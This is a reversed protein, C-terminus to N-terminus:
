KSLTAIRKLDEDVNMSGSQNNLSQHIKLSEELYNIASSRQGSGFVILGLNHWVNALGLLDAHRKYRSDAQLAYEHAKEWDSSLRYAIAMNNWIDAVFSLDGTAEAIEHADGLYKLAPEPKEMDVYLAGLNTLGNMLSHTDQMKKWIRCAMMLNSEASDWHRQNMYLIGLHNHTHALGHESGLDEFISLAHCSLVESRWAYDGNVYAYGLNSCARAEEFRNGTHRALRIVRRYFRVVDQPRSERQCLRALLATLTIEGDVDEEKQAVGIARDLITHWVAWQGRREMYSTFAIILKKVVPWAQSMELGFSIAKLIAEHEQDLTEIEIDQVAEDSEWREVMSLVCQLFYQADTSTELQAPEQWKVVEHMLFTETLRHLRYRPESLDGGVEVLSLTRLQMLAGQLADVELGSAAGLQAFTANPAVPMTLLLYRSSQDLMQWAQWYIYSYLQEARDTTAAHLSMLVQDLPLFQLQGLVLKLALPNGGVTAYITELQEDTAGMLTSMGRSEAEYRLFALADDRNLESLSHCYVDGQGALSLRSTILFKSPNALHRLLPLLEAYDIATELNDVVVLSVKEKLLQTLALRKEQSSGTPYPGDSLQALLLDMLTEADLAPKGTEQVGRDPLYEEQKASIWGIDQYRFTGQVENGSEDVGDTQARDVLRHILTNALSTKGIGGIGDIAILWSRDDANVAGEIETLAMEVGFLKQDPLPDLRNLITYPDFRQGSVQLIPHGPPSTMTDGQRGATKGLEGTRIQEALTVTTEDPEVGLEQDLVKICRDYQALAEARQGQMALARMLRCHASEDWPTLVLQRRALDVVQGFSGAAEALDGVHTIASSLQQHLHERMMAMWDEFGPANDVSFGALFDGQYLDLASQLQTYAQQADDQAMVIDVARLMENVDLQYSSNLDWEITQRTILLFPPTANKNDIIRQLRSLTQRFNTNAEKPPYESWLLDILSDRQHVRGAEIALYTLLAQAKRSRFTTINIGNISVSFAGFLSISLQPM